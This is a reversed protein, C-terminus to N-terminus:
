IKALDYINPLLEIEPYNNALYQRLEPYIEEYNNKITLLISEPSLDALASPSYVKYGEIDEGCISSNKDIIGIVNDLKEQGKLLNQLYLSAGWFVVRKGSIYKNLYDFTLYDTRFASSFMKYENPLLEKIDQVFKEYQENNLKPVLAQVHARFIKTLPLKLNNYVGYSNLLDRTLMYCKIINIVYKSYTSTISGKRQKRYNIYVNDLYVIRRALVRIAYAFSTDNFCEISQFELNNEVILERLYLKNWPAPSLMKFIDQPFDKWSFPKEIPTNSYVFPVSKLDIAGNEYHREANCVVIDAQHKEAADYMEQFMNPKFYDDSDLFYIYKGTAKRLGLNRAAGANQHVQQLIIFRNDNLQYEKLIEYSNDTSGDDVCIIEIDEFTQNVISDLTNRLVDGVNYVPVVVSINVLKKRGNYIGAEM